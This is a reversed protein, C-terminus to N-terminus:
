WTIVIAGPSGAGGAGGNYAGSGGTGPVLATLGGGQGAKAGGGFFSAGGYGGFADAASALLSNRAGDGGVGGGIRLNGGSAAGGAGGAPSGGSIISAGNGGAATMIGGNWSTTGGSAATGVGANAARGAGGAGVVYPIIAGPSVSFVGAAYAGAGGGAGSIGGNLTDQGCGGGGGGVIEVKISTVGAPVTFNGAGVTGISTMGHPPSSTIGVWAGNIYVFLRQNSADIQQVYYPTEGPAPAGTPAGAGYNPPCNCDNITFPDLLVLNGAGDCAALRHAATPLEQDANCIGLALAQRWAATNPLVVGLDGAADCVVMRTTAGVGPAAPANCIIENVLGPVSGATWNSLATGLNCSQECNWTGAPDLTAALCLLESQFANIQAASIRANCNSPLFNLTCSLSFGVPPNYSNEVEPQPIPNGGSDRTPLGGNETNPIIGVM